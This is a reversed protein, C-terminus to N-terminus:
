MEWQGAALGVGATVANHDLTIPFDTRGPPVPILYHPKQWDPAQINDAGTVHPGSSESMQINGVKLSHLADTDSFVIQMRLFKPQFWTPVVANVDTSFVDTSDGVLQATFPAMVKPM